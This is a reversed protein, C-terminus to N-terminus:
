RQKRRKRRRVPPDREELCLPTGALDDATPALTTGADTQRVRNRETGRASDNDEKCDPIGALDTTTPKTKAKPPISM